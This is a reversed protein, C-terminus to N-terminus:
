NILRYHISLLFEDANELELKETTHNLNSKFQFDKRVNEGHVSEFVVSLDISLLFKNPRQRSSTCIAMLMVDFGDLVYGAHKLRFWVHCLPACSSM